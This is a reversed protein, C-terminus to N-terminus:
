GERESSKLVAILADLEDRVSGHPLYPGCEELKAALARSTAELAAIHDISALWASALDPKDPLEDINNWYEALGVSAKVSALLEKVRAPDLETM